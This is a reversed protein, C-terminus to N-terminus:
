SAMGPIDLQGTVAATILARRRELLLGSLSRPSSQLGGGLEVLLEATKADERLLHRDVARQRTPPPLPMRINGIDSPNIAPYSVGVSRSVVEDIFLDSQAWWSFFGPDLEPGPSLVAFGTSVVLDDTAGAVPWVARLYTRVTSVITDGPKVLRRARTPAAEFTTVEPEAILIGRGVASIDLYRFELDPRTSEPLSRQNISVLYKM